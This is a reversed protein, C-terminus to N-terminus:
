ESFDLNEAFSGTKDIKKLELTKKIVRFLSKPTLLAPWLGNCHNKLNNPSDRLDLFLTESLNFSKYNYTYDEMTLHLRMFSTYLSMRRIRPFRVNM